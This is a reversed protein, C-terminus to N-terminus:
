LGGGLAAAEKFWYSRTIEITEAGADQGVILLLLSLLIRQLGM